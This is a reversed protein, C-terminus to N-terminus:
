TASHEGPVGPMTGSLVVPIQASSKNQLYQCQQTTFFLVQIDWGPLKPNISSAKTKKQPSLKKQNESSLCLAMTREILNGFIICM